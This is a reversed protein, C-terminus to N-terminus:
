GRPSTMRGHTEWPFKIATETELYGVLGYEVYKYDFTGDDFLDVGGYGAAHEPAYPAAIRRAIWAPEAYGNM